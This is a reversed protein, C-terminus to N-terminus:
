RCAPAGLGVGEAFLPSLRFHPTPSTSHAYQELVRCYKSQLRKLPAEAAARMRRATIAALRKSMLPSSVHADSAALPPIATAATIGANSAPESFDVGQLCRWSWMSKTM